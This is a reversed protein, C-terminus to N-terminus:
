ENIGGGTEGTSAKVKTKRISDLKSQFTVYHPMKLHSIFGTSEVSDIHYLVFEENHSPFDPNPHQLCNDLIGMAIAKTENQGFCLGYGIEFEMEKKGREKEVTVPMLMEVETAQFDGIYYSDEEQGEDLPHDIYVPLQGVRLEGVTPHLAGYGRIVAYALSTVAGTQGRTLIQLRESRESPFELSTRTVDEPQSDNNECSALLGESRLYDLVKPLNTLDSMHNQDYEKLRNEAHYAYLWDQISEETEKELEWDLLRHTYDTTAGLIQGGPIDKFSASIRREVNMDESGIIRSVHKRPLTSRYARLLFVAEEPNGEAQKIAIASLSQDYLSSESMVQDILGRMGVEITHVDLVIGKQLREYKLRKISEEIAQTGGKVAVYGM